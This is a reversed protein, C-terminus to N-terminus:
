LETRTSRFMVLGVAALCLICLVGRVILWSPSSSLVASLAAVGFTLPISILAMKSQRRLRVLRVAIVHTALASASYSILTAIASGAIGWRPVFALNLGLNLVAAILTSIGLLGTRKFWILVRVDSIYFGYPVAATAVEAVIWLLNNPKYQPPALVRLALPAGLALGAVLPLLLVQVRDRLAALVSWRTEHDAISLFRPAWAQNAVGLLLIGFCGVNYAVQYRAVADSGLDRQVIIRDGANLVYSAVFQPLLPVAYVLVSATARVERIGALSPRTYLLAIGLGLGQALLLGYLYSDVTRSVTILLLLGLAQAGVSQTLSVASFVGFHDRSRVNAIAIQSIAALGGVWVTLRGVSDFHGLGVVGAWFPGTAEILLTVLISLVISAALLQRARLPGDHEVYVRQIGSQLGLSAFATVLQFLTLSLSLRGFSALGLLRTAVPTSGVAAVTQLAWVAM